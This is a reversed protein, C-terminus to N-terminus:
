NKKTKKIQFQYNVSPLPESNMRRQPIIPIIDSSFLSLVSDIEKKNQVQSEKQEM